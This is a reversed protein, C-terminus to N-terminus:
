DNPCGDDKLMMLEAELRDIHDLAAWLYLDSQDLWAPGPKRDLMARAEARQADDM